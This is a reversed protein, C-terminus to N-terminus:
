LITEPVFSTRAWIAQGSWPDIQLPALIWSPVIPDQSRSLPSRGQPTYELFSQHKRCYKDIEQWSFDWHGAFTSPSHPNIAIAVPVCHFSLCLGVKRPTKIDHPKALFFCENAVSSLSGQKCINHPTLAHSPVSQRQPFEPHRHAM